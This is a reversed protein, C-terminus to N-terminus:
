PLNPNPNPSRTRTGPKPSRTRTRGGVTSAGGAQEGAADTKAVRALYSASPPLIPGYLHQLVEPLAYRKRRADQRVRYMHQKYRERREQYTLKEKAKAKAKKRLLRM